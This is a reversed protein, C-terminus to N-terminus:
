HKSSKVGKTEVMEIHSTVIPKNHLTSHPHHWWVGGVLHDDIVRHQRRVTQGTDSYRFLIKFTRLRLGSRCRYCYFGANFQFWTLIIFAVFHINGRKWSKTLINVFIQQENATLEKTTQNPLLFLAVFVSLTPSIAM